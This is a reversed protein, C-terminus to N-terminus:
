EKELAKAVAGIHGPGIGCCGGVICAGSSVWKCACSVYDQTTIDRIQLGSAKQDGKGSESEQQDITWGPKHEEWFNAYGGLLLGDTPLEKLTALADAILQPTSCNFLLAEAGSRKAFEVAERLPTGDIIEAHGGQQSRRLVFSVWVPIDTSAKRCAAVAPAAETISSMTECLWLDVGPAEAMATTLEAYEEALKEVPLTLDARYCESLPPVCGAVRPPTKRDPSGAAAAAERALRVAMRTLEKVRHGQGSKELYRKTVAFTATTVVDAGSSLYDAHLQRVADPTEILAATSFLELNYAVPLGEAKRRKLELGCGGDLVLPRPAAVRAESGDREGDRRGLRPVKAPPLGDPTSTADISAM